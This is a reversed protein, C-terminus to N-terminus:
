YPAFMRVLADEADYQSNSRDVDHRQEYPGDTVLDSLNGAYATTQRLIRLELLENGHEAPVWSNM